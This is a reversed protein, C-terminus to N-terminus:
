SQSTNNCQGYCTCEITRSISYVKSALACRIIKSVFVLPLSSVVKFELYELFGAKMMSGEVVTGAVIGDLTLLAETSTRQGRVFPQKKEARTGAKSRGYRWQPTWDDKSTEDIFGIEEPSYQAMRAIFNAWAEENREKAIHKLKKYSMGAHELKRHITVYHISIFRNMKLLHLLEDLFYGPNQRVLCLLYDVVESDLICICGCLSQNADGTQRWLKL